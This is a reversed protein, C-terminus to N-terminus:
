NKLEPRKQLIIKLAQKRLDKDGFYMQVEKGNKLMIMLYNFDVGVTEKQNEYDVTPLSYIQEYPIYYIGWVIANNYLGTIRYSKCERASIEAGVVAAANLILNVYWSYTTFPMVALIAACIIYVGFIKFSSSALPLVMNGANKKIFKRRFPVSATVGAFCVAAVIACIYKFEM